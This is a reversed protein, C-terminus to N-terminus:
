QGVPSPKAFARRAAEVGLAILVPIFSAVWVYAGILPYSRGNVGHDDGFEIHTPQLGTLALLTGLFALVSGVMATKFSAAAATAPHGPSELPGKAHRNDRWVSQEDRSFYK